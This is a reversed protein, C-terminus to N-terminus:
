IRTILSNVHKKIEAFTTRAIENIRASQITENEQLTVDPINWTEHKKLIVGFEEVCFSFWDPHMFVVIDSKELIEKTSQTWGEKHPVQLLDNEKLINYAYRSIDGNLNLNARVGSSTALWGTKRLSNFYIEALRSRYTNGECVFHINM